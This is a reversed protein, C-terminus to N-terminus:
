FLQYSLHNRHTIAALTCIFLYSNIQVWQCYKKRATYSTLHSAKKQNLIFFIGRYYYILSQKLAKHFFQSPVHVRCYSFWLMLVSHMGWGWPYCGCRNRTSNVCNFLFRQQFNNCKNILNGELQALNQHQRVTRTDPRDRGVCISRGQMDFTQRATAHAAQYRRSPRWM